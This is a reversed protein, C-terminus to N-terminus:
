TVGMGACCMGSKGLPLAKTFCDAVMSSTSSYQLVVGESVTERVFHHIVYIHKSRNSAVPHKLLKIAGQNDSFNTIAGTQIGFDWVAEKVAQGM